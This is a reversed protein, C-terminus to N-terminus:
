IPEENIQVALKGTYSGHSTKKNLKIEIRLIGCVKQNDVLTNKILVNDNNKILEENDWYFYVRVKDSDGYLLFTNSDGAINSINLRLNVDESVDAFCIQQEDNVTDYDTNVNSFNFSRLGDITLSSCFYPLCLLLLCALRQFYKQCGIM